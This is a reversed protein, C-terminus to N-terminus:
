NHFLNVLSVFVLLDKPLWNVFIESINLCCGAVCGDSMIEYLKQSIDSLCSPLLVYKSVVSPQYQSSIYRHKKDYNVFIKTTPSLSCLKSSIDRRSIFLIMSSFDSRSCCHASTFYFYGYNNLM